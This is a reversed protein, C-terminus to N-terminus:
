FNSFIDQCTAVIKNAVFSNIFTSLINFFLLIFLLFDIIIDFLVKFKEKIYEIYKKNKEIELINKLKANNM